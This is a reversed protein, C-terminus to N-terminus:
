QVREAKWNAIIQDVEADTLRLLKALKSREETSMNSMVSVVEDVLEDSVEDDNAMMAQEQQSKFQYRPSGGPRARSRNQCTVRHCRSVTRRLTHCQPERAAARLLWASSVLPPEGCEDAMKSCAESIERRIQM